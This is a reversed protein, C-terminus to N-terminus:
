NKSKEFLPKLSSFMKGTEEVEEWVGKPETPEIDTATEKGWAIFEPDRAAKRAAERLVELRDEPTGPPAALVHAAGLATLQPYGLEAITPVDPYHAERKAGLYVLPQVENTFGGFHHIAGVGADGDGRAVALAATSLTKYGTVFASDFGMEAGLASAAIWGSAGIGTTPFKISKDAKTFDKLSKYPGNKAVFVFHRSHSTKYIVSVKEMDLGPKKGLIHKDVLFPVFYNLGMTYGDPKSKYLLISGRRGGAGPNNKIAIAVGLHKEMKPVLVRVMQDFGGGAGFPVIFSIPKDPYDAFSAQPQLTIAAGLALASLLLRSRRM